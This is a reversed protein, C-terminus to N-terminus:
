SKEKRAIVVAGVLAVILVVSIVEFPFVYNGMFAVGIDMTTVKLGQLEERIPWKTKQLIGSFAVLFLLCAGFALLGLNNKQPISKDGFRETLMISFIVLTMVAGVYILIQVIALFDAQLALYIGAIGLLVFVLWLAAHFINRVTVVALAAIVTLAMLFYLGFQVFNTLPQM